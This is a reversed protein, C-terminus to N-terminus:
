SCSISDLTYACVCCQRLNDGFLQEAHFQEKINYLQPFTRTIKLQQYGKIERCLKGGGGVYRVNQGRNKHEVFPSM